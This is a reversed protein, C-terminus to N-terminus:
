VGVAKTFIYIAFTVILSVKASNQNVMSRIKEDSLNYEGRIVEIETKFKENDVMMQQIDDMIKEFKPSNPDATNKLDDIMKFQREDMINMHNYLNKIREDMRALDVYFSGSGNKDGDLVVGGHTIYM